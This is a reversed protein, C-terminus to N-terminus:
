SQSQRGTIQQSLWAAAVGVLVGVITDALRMIPGVWADDPHLSALPLLVATTIAAVRSVGALVSSHYSSRCVFITAIVAWIGGVLDDPASIPHLRTM